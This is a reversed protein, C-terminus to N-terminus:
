KHDVQGVSAFYVMFTGVVYIYIYIYEFLCGGPFAVRLWFFLHLGQNLLFLVSFGFLFWFFLLFMNYFFSRSDVFGFRFILCFGFFLPFVFGFFFHGGLFPENTLLDELPTEDSLVM